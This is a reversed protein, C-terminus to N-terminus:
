GSDWDDTTLTFVLRFGLNTNRTETRMSDIIAHAEDLEIQSTGPEAALTIVIATGEIEVMWEEQLADTRRYYGDHGAVTAATWGGDSAGGPTSDITIDVDGSGYGNHMFGGSPGITCYAGACSSGDWSYVGAANENTDPWGRVVEGESASPIPAVASVDPAVSAGGGTPRPSPSDSGSRCATLATLTVVLVLLRLRNRYVTGAPAGRCRRNM